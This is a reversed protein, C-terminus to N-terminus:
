AWVSSRAILVFAKLWALLPLITDRLCFSSASKCVALFLNNSAWSFPLVFFIASSVALIFSIWVLRSLAIASSCVARLLYWVLTWFGCTLTSFVGVCVILSRSCCASSIRSAISVLWSFIVANFFFLFSLALDLSASIFM